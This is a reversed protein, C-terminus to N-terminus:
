SSPLLKSSLFIQDLNGVKELIPCILRKKVGFHGNLERYLELTILISQGLLGYKKEVSFIKSIRLSMRIKFLMRM